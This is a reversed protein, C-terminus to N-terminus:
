NVAQVRGQNQSMMRSVLKQSMGKVRSLDEVSKFRGKQERDALIAEARKKGIGKLSMLEDVTATNLDIAAPHSEQKQISNEQHVKSSKGDQTSAISSVSSLLMGMTFFLLVVTKNIFM